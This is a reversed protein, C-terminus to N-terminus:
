KPASPPGSASAPDDGQGAGAPDNTGVFPAPSGVTGTGEPNEAAAGTAAPTVAGGSVTDGGIDGATGSPGAATRM